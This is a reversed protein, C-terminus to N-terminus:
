KTSDLHSAIVAAFQKVTLNRRRAAKRVEEYGGRRIAVRGSSGMVEVNAIQEPSVFREFRKRLEDCTTRGRVVFEIIYHRRTKSETTQTELEEFSSVPDRKRLEVLARLDKTDLIDDAFRKAAIAQDRPGLHALHVVADVSDIKRSAVLARAEPGLDNVRCFQGLMKGSLGVHQALRAISGFHQRGYSVADAIRTLSVGRTKRKTSAILLAVARDLTEKDKLHPQDKM